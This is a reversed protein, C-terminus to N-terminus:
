RRSIMLPGFDRLLLQFELENTRTEYGVCDCFCQWNQGQRVETKYRACGRMELIKLNELKKWFFREYRCNKRARSCVHDLFEWQPRVELGFHKSSEPLDGYTKTNPM